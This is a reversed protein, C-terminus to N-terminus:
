KRYSNKSGPGKKYYPRSINHNPRTQSKYPRYQPNSRKKFTAGGRKVLFPQSQRQREPVSEMILSFSRENLTKMDDKLSDGFLSTASTTTQSLISKVRPKLQPEKKIREKRQRISAAFSHAMIKFSDMALDKVQKFDEKVNTSPNMFIDLMKVTPGLCRTLTHMNQQIQLDVCRTTHDIVRWLQLDVKPVQLHDVNAPRNYRELIPKIKDEKPNEHLARNILSALKESIKEGTEHKTEFYQDLDEFLETQESEESDPEGPILDELELDSGPGSTSPEPSDVTKRKKLNGRQEEESHKRKLVEMDKKLTNMTQSLQNLTGASGKLEEVLNRLVSEEKGTSHGITQKGTENQASDGQSHALESM